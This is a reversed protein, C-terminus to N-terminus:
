VGFFYGFLSAGAYPGREPGAGHARRSPGDKAWCPEGPMWAPLAVACFRWEAERLPPYILLLLLLEVTCVFGTAAASPQSRTRLALLVQQWGIKFVVRAGRVPPRVCTSNHPHRPLVGRWGRHAMSPGDRRAGMVTGSHPCRPLRPSGPRITPCPSKPEKQTRGLPVRQLLSVLIETLRSHRIHM